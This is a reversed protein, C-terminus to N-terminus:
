SPVTFPTTRIEKRSDSTRTATFKATYTTGATVSVLEGSTAWQVTLNPATAAGTFGTTKTFAVTGASDILELQWTWGSSFDRLTGDNKWTIPWDPLSSGKIYAPV